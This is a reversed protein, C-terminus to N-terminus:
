QAANGYYGERTRVHLKSHRPGNASVQIKHFTFDGVHNPPAYALIYQSRIDQAITRCIEPLDSLKEPTFFEGGTLTALRKLVGPNKDDDMEDFAGITYIVAGSQDAMRIVQALTHKSVNDGGDSILLIAKRQLPSRGLHEIAVVLADYLATKGITNLHTFASSLENVDSTYLIDAPLGFSVRNSFSVVFMQDQSNSSRAFDLAAEVVEAKKARMSSSDDVVIGVTVPVDERAFYAIKQQVGDETVLFDDQGLDMVNQGKHDRVSANLVVMSADSRLPVSNVHTAASETSQTTVTPNQPGDTRTAHVIFRDPASGVYFFPYCTILTLESGSTSDLADLDLPSVIEAYQVAYQTTGHPTSLLIKDGPKVDKLPRFFTDRHGAIAINGPEGPLATGLVHGPGLKLTKDDSGEVVISSIKLRPIELRGLADGVHPVVSAASLVASNAAAKSLSQLKHAGYAQFFYGELYSFIAGILFLSGVVLLLYCSWRSVERRMARSSNGAVFEPAAGPNTKLKARIFMVSGQTKRFFSLPERWGL